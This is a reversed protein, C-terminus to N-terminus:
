SAQIHITKTSTASQLAPQQLSNIQLLYVAAAAPAAAAVSAKGNIEVRNAPVGITVKNSTGIEDTISIADVTGKFDKGEITCAEKVEIVSIDTDGKLQLRVNEKEASVKGKVIVNHFYISDDGGGRVIVDGKVTTDNM